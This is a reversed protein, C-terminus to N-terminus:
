AVRAAAPDRGATVSPYPYAAVPPQPASTAAPLFPDRVLVVVWTPVVATFDEAYQVSPADRNVATVEVLPPKAIVGAVM